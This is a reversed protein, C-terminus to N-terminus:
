RTNTLMHQVQWIGRYARVTMKSQMQLEANQKGCSVHHLRPQAQVISLGAHVELQELMTLQM